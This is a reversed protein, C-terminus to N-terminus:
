DNWEPCVDTVVGISNIVRAASECEDKSSFHVNAKGYHHAEWTEIAAEELTCATAKMLISVVQDISNYDNNHIVVMWRGTKVPNLNLDLQEITSSM